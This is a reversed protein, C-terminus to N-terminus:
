NQSCTICDCDDPRIAVNKKPEKKFAIKSFSVAQNAENDAFLPGSGGGCYGYFMYQPIDFEAEIRTDGAAM